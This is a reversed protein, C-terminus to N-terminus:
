NLNQLNKKGFIHHLAKLSVPFNHHVVKLSEDTLRGNQVGQYVYNRVSMIRLNATSSEYTHGRDYDERTVDYCAISRFKSSSWTEEKIRKNEISIRAGREENGEEHILMEAM